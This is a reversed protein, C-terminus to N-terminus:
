PSSQKTSDGDAAISQLTEVNDADRTQRDPVVRDLVVLPDFRRWAPAQVLVSSLLLGGRLAWVVFGVTLGTSAIAATGVTIKSYFQESQVDESVHELDEWLGGDATLYAFESPSVTTGLDPSTETDATDTPLTHSISEGPQNREVAQESETLRSVEDWRTSEAPMSAVEASIVPRSEESPPLNSGTPRDGPRPLEPTFDPPLNGPRSEDENDADNDDSGPDDDRIDDGTDRPPPDDSPPPGVAALVRVIVTAQNGPSHGDHARYTFRDEGFFGADATYLFSGDAALSV